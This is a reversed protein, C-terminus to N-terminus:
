GARWVMRKSGNDSASGVADEVSELTVLRARSRAGPRSSADALDALVRCGFVGPQFTLAAHSM